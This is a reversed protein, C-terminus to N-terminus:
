DSDNEALPVADDEGEENESIKDLLEDEDTEIECDDCVVHYDDFENVDPHDTTDAHVTTDLWKLGSESVREVSTIEYIPRYTYADTRVSLTGKQCFPCQMPKRKEAPERQTAIARVALELAGALEVPDIESDTVISSGVHDECLQALIVAARQNTMQEM